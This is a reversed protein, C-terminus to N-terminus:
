ERQRRDACTVPTKATPTKMATTWSTKLSTTHTKVTAASPKMAPVKVAPTEPVKVAPTEPVKVAPTEPVKVAPTEPVKVAPTEPVKVAPTEPVRVAPTEPVKVTMATKKVTITKENGTETKISVRPPPIPTIGIIPTIRIWIIRVGVIRILRIRLVVVEITRNGPNHRHVEQAPPTGSHHREKLKRIVQTGREIEREFRLKRQSGSRDKLASRDYPL